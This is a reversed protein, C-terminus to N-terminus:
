KDQPRKKMQHFQCRQIWNAFSCFMWFLDFCTSYFIWYSFSVITNLTVMSFSPLCEALFFTKQLLKWTRYRVYRNVFLNGFIEYGGFQRFGLVFAIIFLLLFTLRWVIGFILLCKSKIVIGTFELFTALITISLTFTLSYPIRNYVTTVWSYLLIISLGYLGMEIFSLIQAIVFLNVDCKIPMKFTNTGYGKRVYQCYWTLVKTFVSYALCYFLFLLTRLLQWIHSQFPKRQVKPTVFLFNKTTNM